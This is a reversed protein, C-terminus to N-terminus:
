DHLQRDNVELSRVIRDFTPQFTPYDRSPASALM